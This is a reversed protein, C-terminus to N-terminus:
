EMVSQKWELGFSLFIHFKAAVQQKRWFVNKFSELITVSQNIKAFYRSSNPPNWFIHKHLQIGDPRDNGLISQQAVRTAEKKKAM